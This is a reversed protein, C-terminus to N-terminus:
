GQLAAQVADAAVHQRIYWANRRQSWRAGLEKLATRVAEEPKAPFAIWTWDREHTVTFEGADGTSAQTAAAAPDPRAAAEIADCVTRVAHKGAETWRGGRCQSYGTGSKVIRGAREVHWMRGKPTAQFEPWTQRVYEERRLAHGRGDCKVCKLRGDSRFPIPSVVTNLLAVVGSNPGHAAAIRERHYRAPERRAAELTWGSPDVGSGGCHECTADPLYRAASEAEGSRRVQYDSVGVGVVVDPYDPHTAVGDWSAPCYYDTMLDSQDERYGFLQWGRRALEEGVQAVVSQKESWSLAM